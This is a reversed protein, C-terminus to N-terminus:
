WAIMLQDKWLSASIGITLTGTIGFAQPDHRVTRPTSRASRRPATGAGPCSFAPVMRPVTVSSCPWTRGPAVTVTTFSRVLWDREPVVSAFPLKWNVDSSGSVYVTRTSICLKRVTSRL